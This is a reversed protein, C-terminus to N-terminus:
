SCVTKEKEEERERERERERKIYIYMYIYIPPVQIHIHMYKVLMEELFLIHCLNLKKLHLVARKSNKNDKVQERVLFLSALLFCPSFM